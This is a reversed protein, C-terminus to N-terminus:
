PLPADLPKIRLFTDIDNLIRQTDPPQIELNHRYAVVDQHGDSTRELESAAKLADTLDNLRLYSAVITLYGIRLGTQIYNNSEGTPKALFDLMKRSNEIASAYQGLAYSARALDGYILIQAVNTSQGADAIINPPPLHTALTLLKIGRKLDEPSHIELGRDVLVSGEITTADWLDAAGLRNAAEVDALADGFMSLQQYLGARLYLADSRLAVNSGSDKIARSALEIGAKAATRDAPLLAEGRTDFHTARLMEQVAARMELEAQLPQLSREYEVLAIAADTFPPTPNQLATTKVADRLRTKTAASLRLANQKATDLADAVQQAEPPSLTRNRTLKLLRRNLVEAELRRSSIGFAAAFAVLGTALAFRRGISVYPSVHSIRHPFACYVWTWILVIALALLSSGVVAQNVPTGDLMILIGLGTSGTWAVAYM